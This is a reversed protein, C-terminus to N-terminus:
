HISVLTWTCYAGQVAYIFTTQGTIRDYSNNITDYSHESWECHTTHHCTDSVCPWIKSPVRTVNPTTRPSITNPLIRLCAVHMHFANNQQQKKKCVTNAVSGSKTRGDEWDSLQGRVPRSSHHFVISSRNSKSIGSYLSCSTASFPKCCIHIERIFYTSM